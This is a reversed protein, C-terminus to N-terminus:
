TPGCAPPNSSNAATFTTLMLDNGVRVTEAITRSVTADAILRGTLSITIYRVQMGAGTNICNTHYATTFSLATINITASDTLATGAWNAGCNTSTNRSQVVGVGGVVARAFGYAESNGDDVGDLDTDYGYTICDNAVSNTGVNFSANTLFPPQNGTGVFTSANSSFGARRIDRQMLSMVSRLEQNLRIMRLTSLNARNSTSLASIIAALVALGITM